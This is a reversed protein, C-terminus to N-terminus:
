VEKMNNRFRSEAHTPYTGTVKKRNKYIEEKLAYEEKAWEIYSECKSHCGPIREKCKYCPNKM